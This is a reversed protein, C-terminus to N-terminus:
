VVSKRDQKMCDGVKILAQGKLWEDDTGSELAKRYDLIAPSWKENEFYYNAMAMFAQAQIEPTIDPMILGTLIQRASDPQVVYFLSMGKWLIAENTFKTDPYKGLLEDVKGISNRFKGTHYYAKALLFLAEEEWKSDPYFDLMRGASEIVNQFEKPAKTNKGSEPEDMQERRKKEAEAYSKKANYLYNYYACSTLTFILSISILVGKM